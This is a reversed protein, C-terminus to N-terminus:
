SGRADKDYVIDVGRIGPQIDPKEIRIRVSAVREDGILHEAIRGALTEVLDVHGEAVVTEIAGTIKDYSFFSGSTANRTAPDLTVDVDFCVRQPAAREPAHIGVRALLTFDRVFVHM